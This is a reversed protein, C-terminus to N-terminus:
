AEASAAEGDREEKQETVWLRAVRVPDKTAVAAVSFVVRREPPVDGDRLAQMVRNYVEHPEGQLSVVIHPYAPAPM